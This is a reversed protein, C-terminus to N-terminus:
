PKLNRNNNQYFLVVLGDHEQIFKSIARSIPKIQASRKATEKNELRNVYTKPIIAKTMVDIKEYRSIKFISPSVGNSIMFDFNMRFSPFYPRTGNDFAKRNADAM